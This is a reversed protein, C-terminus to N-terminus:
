IDRPEYWLVRIEHSVTIAVICWEVVEDVVEHELHQM